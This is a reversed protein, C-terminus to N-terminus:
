VCTNRNEFSALSLIYSKLSDPSVNNQLYAIVEDHQNIPSSSSYVAPNFNGKVLQETIPNTFVINTQCILHTCPLFVIFTLFYSFKM